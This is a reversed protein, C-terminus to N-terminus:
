STTKNILKKTYFKVSTMFRRPQIPRAFSIAAKLLKSSKGKEGGIKFKQLFNFVYFLLLPIAGWRTWM